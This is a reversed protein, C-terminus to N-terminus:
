SSAAKAELRARSPRVVDWVLGFRELTWIVAASVDVQWRGLGHV